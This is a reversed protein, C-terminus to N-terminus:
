KEDLSDSKNRRTEACLAKLVKPNYCKPDSVMRLFLNRRMRARHLNNRQQDFIINNDIDPFVDDDDAIEQDINEMALKETEINSEISARASWLESAEASIVRWAYEVDAEEANQTCIAFRIVYYENILAPVM